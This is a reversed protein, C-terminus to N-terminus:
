CQGEHPSKDLQRGVPAMKTSSLIVQQFRLQWFLFHVADAFSLIIRFCCCPIEWLLKMALENEVAMHARGLLNAHLCPFFTFPRQSTDAVGQLLLIHAPQITSLSCFSSM